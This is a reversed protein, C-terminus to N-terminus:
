DVGLSCVRQFKLIFKKLTHIIFQSLKLACFPLLWNNNFFAHAMCEVPDDRNKNSQCCFNHKHPTACIYVPCSSCYYFSMNGCRPKLQDANVFYISFIQSSWASHTARGGIRIHWMSTAKMRMIVCFKTWGEKEFYMFAFTFKFFRVVDYYKKELCFINQLDWLTRPRFNM